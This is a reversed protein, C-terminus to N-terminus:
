YYHTEIDNMLEEETVDYRPISKKRNYNTTKYHTDDDMHNGFSYDNNSVPGFIDTKPMTKNVEKFKSVDFSQQSVQDIEWEDPNRYITKQRLLQQQTYQERQLKQAYTEPYDGKPPEPPQWTKVKGNSNINTNKNGTSNKKSRWEDKLLDAADDDSSDDFPQPIRSNTKNNNEIRALKNTNGNLQKESFKNKSNKINESKVASNSNVQSKPSLADSKKDTNKLTIRVDNSKEKSSGSGM